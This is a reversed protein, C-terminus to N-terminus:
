FLMSPVGNRSGVHQHLNPIEAPPQFVNHSLIVTEDAFEKAFLGQRRAEAAVDMQHVTLDAQRRSAELIEDDLLVLGAATLLKARRLTGITTAPFGSRDRHRPGDIARRHHPREDGRDLPM